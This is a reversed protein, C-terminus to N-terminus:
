LNNYLDMLQLSVFEIIVNHSGETKRIHFYSSVRQLAKLFDVYQKLLSSFFSLFFASFGYM